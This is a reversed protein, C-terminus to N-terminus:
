ATAQFRAVGITGIRSVTTIDAVDVQSHLLNTEVVLTHIQHNFGNGIGITKKIGNRSKIKQFVNWPLHNQGVTLHGIGEDVEHALDVTHQHGTTTQQCKRGSIGSCFGESVRGM